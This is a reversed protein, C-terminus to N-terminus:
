HCGIDICAEAARYDREQFPGAAHIAADSEDIARSVEAPVNLDACVFEDGIRAALPVGLAPNRGGTRVITDDVTSLETAIRSGSVGPGGLVTARKV